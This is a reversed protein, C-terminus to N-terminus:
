HHAIAAFPDPGPVLEALTTAGALEGIPAGNIGLVRHATSIWAGTPLRTWGEWSIQLGKIPIVSVYLRWARPRSEDDLLWVYSDGPTLGGSSYAVVLAARDGVTARSRTVGPDFFKPLPNLWFTDNIWIAYAKDVLKQTLTGDQVLTGNQFAQGRHGDVDLLVEYNGWRVRDFNRRRDWLHHTRGAFSFQVAGTRAWADVDVAREVDHALQDAAPGTLLGSPMAHRLSLWLIAALAVVVLVLWSLIKLLVRLVRRM